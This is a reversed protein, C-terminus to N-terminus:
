YRGSFMFLIIPLDKFSQCWCVEFALFKSFLSGLFLAVKVGLFKSVLFGIFWAGSVRLMGVGLFWFVFFCAEALHDTSRLVDWSWCNLINRSAEGSCSLIGVSNPSITFLVNVLESTAVMRRVNSPRGNKYGHGGPCTTGSDQVTQNESFIFIMKSTSQVM